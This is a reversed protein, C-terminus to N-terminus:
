IAEPSREARVCVCVSLILTLNTYHYDTNNNYILTNLCLSMRSASCNTLLLLINRKLKYAAYHM